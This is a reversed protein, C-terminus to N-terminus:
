ENFPEKNKDQYEKVSLRISAPIDALMVGPLESGDKLYQVAADNLEVSKVFARALPDSLVAAVDIVVAQSPQPTKDVYGVGDFTTRANHLVDMALNHALAKAKVMDLKAESIHFHTKISAILTKAHDIIPKARVALDDHVTKARAYAALANRVDLNDM